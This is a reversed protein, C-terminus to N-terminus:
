IYYMFRVDLQREIGMGEAKECLDQITTQRFVDAIGDGIGEISATQGAFRRVNTLHLSRLKM